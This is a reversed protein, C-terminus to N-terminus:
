LNSYKVGHSTHLVCDLFGQHAGGLHGLWRLLNFAIEQAMCAFVLLRSLEVHALLVEDIGDSGFIFVVHTM